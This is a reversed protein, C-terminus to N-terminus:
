PKAKHKDRYRKSKAAIEHEPCCYRADARKFQSIPGGCHACLRANPDRAAAGTMLTQRQAIETSLAAMKTLLLCDAQRSKDRDNLDALMLKLTPHGAWIPRMREYHEIRGATIRNVIEDQMGPTAKATVCLIKARYKAPVAALQPGTLDFWKKGMGPHRLWPKTTCVVQRDRIAKALRKQEENEKTLTDLIVHIPQYELVADGFPDFLSWSNDEVDIIKFELRKALARAKKLTAKEGNARESDLAARTEEEARLFELVTKIPQDTLEVDGLPDLLTFGVEGDIIKFKLRKALAKAQKLLAPDAEQFEAEDDLAELLTETNRTLV